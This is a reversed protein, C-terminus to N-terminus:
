YKIEKKREKKKSPKTPIASVLVVKLIWLPSNVIMALRMAGGFIGRRSIKKTLRAGLEEENTESLGL